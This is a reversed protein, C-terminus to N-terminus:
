RHRGIGSEFKPEIEKVFIAASPLLIPPVSVAFGPQVVVAM